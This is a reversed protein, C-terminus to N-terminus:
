AEVVILEGICTFIEVDCVRIGIIKDAFVDRGVPQIVRRGPLGVLQDLIANDRGRIIVLGEVSAHLARLVVGVEIEQGVLAL